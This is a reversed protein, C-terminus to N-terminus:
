LMHSWWAGDRPSSHLDGPQDSFQHHKRHQAKVWFVPPGEGALAGLWAFFWRIPCYTRLKSHTLLRHYGLCIGLSGTILGLGADVGCGEM